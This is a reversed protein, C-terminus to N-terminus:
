TLMEGKLSRRCVTPILKSAWSVECFWIPGQNPRYGIAMGVCGVRSVQSQDNALEIDYTIVSACM